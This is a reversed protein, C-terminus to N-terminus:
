IPLSVGDSGVVVREEGAVRVIHHGEQLDLEVGVILDGVDGGKRRGPQEGSVHGINRERVGELVARCALNQVEAPVGLVGEDGEPM